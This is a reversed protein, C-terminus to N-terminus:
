PNDARVLRQLIDVEQVLLRSFAAAGAGNLHAADYFLHTEETFDQHTSYDLYSANPYEAIWDKLINQANLIIDTGVLSNYSHFYPPTYFVVGIDQGQLCEIMGKVLKELDPLVDPHSATTEQVPLVHYKAKLLSDFFLESPSSIPRDRLKTTNWGNELIPIDAPTGRRIQSLVPLWHDYRVVPALLGAIFRQLDGEIIQTPRPYTNYMELRLMSRNSSTIAVNDMWLLTYAFPILVVKLEPIRPALQRVKYTTEFLDQGNRWSYFGPLNMSEFDIARSQSHGASLAMIQCSHLDIVSKRATDIPHVPSLANSIIHLSIYLLFGLLLFGFVHFPLKTNM